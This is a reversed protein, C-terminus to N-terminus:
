RPIASLRMVAGHNKLPKRLDLFNKQMIVSINKAKNKLEDPDEAKIGEIFEIGTRTVM